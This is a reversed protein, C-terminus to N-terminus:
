VATAAARHGAPTSIVGLEFGLRLTLHLHVGPWLNLDVGPWRVWFKKENKQMEVRKLTHPTM